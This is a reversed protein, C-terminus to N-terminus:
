PTEDLKASVAITVLEQLTNFLKALTPPNSITLLAHAAQLDAVTLRVRRNSDESEPKVFGDAVTDSPDDAHTISTQFLDFDYDVLASKWRKKLTLKPM